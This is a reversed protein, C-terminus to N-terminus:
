VGRMRKLKEEILKPDFEPYADIFEKFKEGVKEATHPYSSVLQPGVIMNCRSRFGNEYECFKLSIEISDVPCYTSFFPSCLIREENVKRIRHVIFEVLTTTDKKDESMNFEKYAYDSDIEYDISVKRGELNYESYIISLSHRWFIEHTTDKIEAMVDENTTARNKDESIEDSFRLLSALLKVQVIIPINGTSRYILACNHFREKSSHSCATDLICETLDKNHVYSNIIPGYKTLMDGHGERMKVMAVDHWISACLLVYVDEDSFYFKTSSAEKSETRLENNAVLYKSIMIGITKIIAQAHEYGHDNYWPNKDRIFPYQEKILYNKMEWYKNFYDKGNKECRNKLELEFSLYIGSDM